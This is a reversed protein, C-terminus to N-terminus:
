QEIMKLYRGMWYPLLWFVPEREMNPNGNNLSWPNKDWRVTARISAPPLPLVQLDDLVPTRVLRIDERRTHDIRWDILDLPTDVLFAASRKIETKRGRSYCYIFNILPNEDDRRREIWEDIHNEYFRLLEPDTECQLLIPYQYAALIIDFYILWGPNQNKVNAMNDLYHEERILRLYERQYKEDRTMHYALKLFSLLEMSNLSRDPQWEADRNLRDPSWVGWRTHSGDVDTLTYNNRMLHDVIRGVHRAIVSKEAEDAVLEHYLFYGFMHGCIEDSSTDSKWLWKGDRSKRWRVEVPKFRPEKVLEDALERANYTVNGDDYATWQSPIITRAFYGDTETVEQLLKLFEFAKKAKIKADLDGTTAYRFSELALYNSTYEGDNDDDDGEWKSTDGAIPLKCQGAIWPERIHRRMLVDYFYFQKSSLTMRKHKIASVGGDTAVWATGEKDFAIDTVRDNLLWRRSFLLSHKQFGRYRVVGVDTGVWMSGDPGRQVCNVQVSPLGNAPRLKVTAPFADRASVFSKAGSEEAAGDNQQAKKFDIETLDEKKMVSVGGLGGFWVNGDADADIGRVYASLLTTTDHTNLVAHGRGFYIGVDSGMWLGGNGDAHAGRVSRAVTYSLAMAGSSDQLWAGKPGLAYMGEPAPELVSVPSEAGSVETLRGADIRYVKNWNSMWVSGDQAVAVDFSPGQDAAPIGDVWERSNKAKRFIGQATCIWVTEDEDVAISRVALSGPTNGAKVPFADHYEQWFATDQYLTDNIEAMPGTGSKRDSPKPACAAFFLMAAVFSIALKKQIM